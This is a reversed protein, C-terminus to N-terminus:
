GKNRLEKDYGLHHEKCFLYYNDPNKMVDSIRIFSGRGTGNIFNPIKHAFELKYKKECDPIQCKGGFKRIM